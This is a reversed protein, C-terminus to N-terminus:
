GKIGSYIKAASVGIDLASPVFGKQSMKAGAVGQAGAVRNQMVAADTAALNGAIGTYHDREAMRGANNAQQEQINRSYANDANRDLRDVEAQSNRLADQHAQYSLLNTRDAIEKQTGGSFLSGRGAASGQVADTAQKQAFSLAPNMYKDVDALAQHDGQYGSHNGVIDQFARGQIRPDNYRGQVSEQYGATYNNIDNKLNKAVKNVDPGFLFEKVSM